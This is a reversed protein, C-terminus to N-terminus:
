LGGTAMGVGREQVEWLIVMLSVCKLIKDNGSLDLKRLRIMFKKLDVLIYYYKKYGRCSSM